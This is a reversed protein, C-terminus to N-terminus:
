GGLAPWTHVLGAASLRVTTGPSFARGGPVRARLDELGTGSFPRLTVMSDHGHYTQEIVV